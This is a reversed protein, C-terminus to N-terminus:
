FAELPYFKYPLWGHAHNAYNLFVFQVIAYCTIIILTLAQGLIRRQFLLPLRSYVFLQLPILYYAFRDVASSSPVIEILPLCAISALSIWTWLRRPVINLNFKKRFLLFIIAPIACMTVRILGGYAHIQIGFYYLKLIALYEALLSYFAWAGILSMWLLTWLNKLRLISKSICALLGLPMLLLVTAHFLAGFVIWCVFRLTSGNMLSALALLFSGVAAAQRTYGMGVVIVLFPVAIVFALWPNPQRRCFVMLGTIFVTAGVLNVGWIPLNMQNITWCLLAYVPNFVGIITAELVSVNKYRDFELINNHWDIGVEFRLGIILIFFITLLVWGLNTVQRHVKATSLAAAAPILFLIWYILM